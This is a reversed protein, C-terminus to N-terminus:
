VCRAQTKLLEVAQVGDAAEGRVEWLPAIRSLNDRLYKRMLPEDDVIM